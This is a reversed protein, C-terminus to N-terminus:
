KNVRNIIIKETGQSHYSKLNEHCHLNLNYDESNHCWATVNYSVLTKSAM